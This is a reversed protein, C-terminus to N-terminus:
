MSLKYHLWILLDICTGKFDVKSKVLGLFTALLKIHAAVDGPNKM